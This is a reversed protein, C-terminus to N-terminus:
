RRLGLPFIGAATPSSRLGLAREAEVEVGGGVGQRGRLGVEFAVVGVAAGGLSRVESPGRLDARVLRVAQAKVVHVAVDPFPAAVEALVASGVLGALEAPPARALAAGTRLLAPARDAG